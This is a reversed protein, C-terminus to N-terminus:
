CMAWFWCQPGFDYMQLLYKPKPDDLDLVDDLVLVIYWQWVSPLGWIHSWPVYTLKLNLTPKAYLGGVAHLDVDIIHM